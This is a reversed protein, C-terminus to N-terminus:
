FRGARDITEQVLNVAFQASVVETASVMSLLSLFTLTMVATLLVLHIHFRRRMRDVEEEELKVFRHLKLEVADHEKRLKAALAERTSPSLM